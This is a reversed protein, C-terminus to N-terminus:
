VIEVPQESNRCGCVEGILRGVGTKPGGRVGDNIYQLLHIGVAL